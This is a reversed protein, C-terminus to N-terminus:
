VLAHRAASACPAAACVAKEAYTGQLRGLTTGSVWVRAGVNLDVVNEGLAEIVGAGEGGPIFPLAPKIAYTGSRM